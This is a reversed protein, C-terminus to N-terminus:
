VEIAEGALHRLLGRGVFEGYRPPIAECVGHASAWPMEMVRKRLEGDGKYRSGGYVPVVRMLRGSQRGRYDASRYRPAWLKHRCPWPPPKIPWNTEFLRHRQVDLPPEFMSGCLMLSDEAALPSGEVNEIVWPLGAAELLERTPVVLEPPEHTPDQVRQVWALHKLRTHAQCPPSAHVAAFDHLYLPNGDFVLPEGALLTRLAEIADGAIAQYPYRKLPLPRPRTRRHTWDDNLDVGFVEFGAGVYGASMGGEGCFLDLLRPAITV